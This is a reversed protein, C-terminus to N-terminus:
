RPPCVPYIRPSGLTAVRRTLLPPETTSLDPPISIIWKTLSASSSRSASASRAHHRRHASANPAHHLPNGFFRSFTHNGLGLMNSKLCVGPKGLMNCSNLPRHRFSRSISISFELLSLAFAAIMRTLRDFVVPLGHRALRVSRHHCKWATRLPGVLVQREWEVEWRTHRPHVSM